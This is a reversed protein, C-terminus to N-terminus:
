KSQEYKDRTLLNQLEKLKCRDSTVGNDSLLIRNYPITMYASKPCESGKMNWQRQSLFDITYNGCIVRTIGQEFELSPTCYLQPSNKLIKYYSQATQKADEASEQKIFIKRM